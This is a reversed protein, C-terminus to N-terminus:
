PWTSCTKRLCQFKPHHDTKPHYGYLADYNVRLMKAGFAAAAVDPAVATFVTLGLVRARGAAVLAQKHRRRHALGRLVGLNSRQQALAVGRAADGPERAHRTHRNGLLYFFRRSGRREALAWRLRHSTSSRSASHRKTPCLFRLSHSPSTMSRARRRM